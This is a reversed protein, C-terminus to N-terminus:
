SGSPYFPNSPGNTPPVPCPYVPLDIPPQLIEQLVVWHCDM